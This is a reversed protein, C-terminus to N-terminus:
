QFYGIVTGALEKIDNWFTQLPDTEEAQEYVVASDPESLDLYIKQSENPSTLGGAQEVAEELTAMDFAAEYQYLLQEEEEQLESLQSRLEVTEAYVENCRIYGLLLVVAIIAVAMFGCVAFPSVRLQERVAVQTRVRERYRPQVLPPTEPPAPVPEAEPIYGPAAVVNDYYELDYAVSGYSAGGSASRRRYAEAM